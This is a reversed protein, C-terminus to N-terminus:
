KFSKFDFKINNWDINIEVNKKNPFNYYLLSEFKGIESYYKILESIDNQKLTIIKNDNVSGPSFMLDFLNIYNEKQNYFHKRKSHSIYKRKPSALIDIFLSVKDNKNPKDPPKYKLLKLKKKKETKKMIDSLNYKKGNIIEITFKNNIGRKTKYKRYKNKKKYIFEYVGELFYRILSDGRIIYNIAKIKFLTNLNDSSHYRTNKIKSLFNNFDIYNNYKSTSFFTENQCYIGLFYNFTLCPNLYNFIINDIKSKIFFIFDEFNPQSCDKATDRIYSCILDKNDNLFPIFMKFIINENDTIEYLPNIKKYIEKIDKITIEGNRRECTLQNYNKHYNYIFNYISSLKCFIYDSLKMNSTTEIFTEEEENFYFPILIHVELGEIEEDINYSNIDKNTIGVMEKGFSYLSNDLNAKAYDKNKEEILVVKFCKLLIKIDDVEKRKFNLQSFDLMDNNHINSFDIQKIKEIWNIIINCNYYLYKLFSIINKDEKSLIEFTKIVKDKELYNNLWNILANYLVRNNNINLEEYPKLIYYLIQKLDIRSKLLSIKNKVKEPVNEKFINIEYNKETKNYNKLFFMCIIKIVRLYNLYETLDFYECKEIIIISTRTFDLLSFIFDKENFDNNTFNLNNFFNNIQDKNDYFPKINDNEFLNIIYKQIYENYDMDFILSYEKEIIISYNNFHYYFLSQLHKKTKNKILDKFYELWKNYSSLKLHLQYRNLNKYKLYFDEIKSYFDPLYKKVPIIPTGNIEYFALIIFLEIERIKINKNKKDNKSNEEDNNIYDILINEKGDIEFFKILKLPTIRLVIIKIYYNYILTEIENLESLIDSKLIINEIFSLLNYYNNGLKKIKGKSKINSFNTIYYLTKYNFFNGLNNDILFPFIKESAIEMPCFQFLIATTEYNQIMRKSLSYFLLYQEKEEYLKGKNLLNYDKLFPLRGSEWIRSM